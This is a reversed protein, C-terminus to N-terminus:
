RNLVIIRGAGPQTSSRVFYVGRAVKAGSDDTGDWHLEHEGAAFVRDALNRVKRGTVDYIGIQVRVAKAVGFRVISASQRMVANGIKLFDVLDRGRGAVPADLLLPPEGTPCIGGFAKSLMAYYYSLRGGDTECYRGYLHEIEYGSTVAVWNRLAVATKVVD